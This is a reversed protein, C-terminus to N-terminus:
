RCSLGLYHDILIQQVATSLSTTRWNAKSCQQSFTIHLSNSQVPCFRVLLNKNLLREITSRVEYISVPRGSHLTTVTDQAVLDSLEECVHRAIDEVWVFDRLTTDFGYISTVSQRLGNFIMTPILGMRYKPRITGYVSSPRYITRKMNISCSLLAQEQSLKMRGYPRIPCPISEPTICSQGEFLGGASSFHFFRIPYNPHIHHIEKILKLLSNFSNLDSDADKQDSTFGAKGAAWIINLFHDNPWLKLTQEITCVMYDRLARYLPTDVRFSEWVLKYSQIPTHNRLIMNRVIASGILGQGFLATIRGPASTQNLLIM